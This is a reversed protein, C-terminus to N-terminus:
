NVGGEMINKRYKFYNKYENGMMELGKDSIFGIQDVKSLNDKIYQSRKDNPVNWALLTPNGGAILFTEVKIKQM